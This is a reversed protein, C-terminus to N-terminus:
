RAKESVFRLLTELVFEINKSNTKTTNVVRRDFQWLPYSTGAILIKSEFGVDGEIIIEINANTLRISWYPPAANESTIKYEPCRESFFDKVQNLAELPSIRNPSDDFYTNVMNSEM